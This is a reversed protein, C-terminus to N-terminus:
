SKFPLYWTLEVFNNSRFHRLRCFGCICRAINANYKQLHKLNCGFPDLVHLVASCLAHILCMLMTSMAPKGQKTEYSLVMLRYHLLLSSTVSGQQIPLKACIHKISFSYVCSCTIKHALHYGTFATAPQSVSAM